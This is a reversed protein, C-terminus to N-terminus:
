NKKKKPKTRQNATDISNKHKTDKHQSQLLCKHQKAQLNNFQIIIITIIM